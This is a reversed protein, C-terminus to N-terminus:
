TGLDVSMHEPHGQDSKSRGERQMARKQLLAVQLSKHRTQLGMTLSSGKELPFRDSSM